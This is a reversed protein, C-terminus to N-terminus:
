PANEGVGAPSPFRAVIARGAALFLALSTEAIVVRGDPLDLRIAVSTAGSEMGGELAAVSIPTTIHIVDEPPRTRLEPWAPEELIVNLSPV